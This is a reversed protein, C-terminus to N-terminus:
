AHDAGVADAVRAFGDKELIEALEAAIRRLLLPGQYILATYTQILVAGARIKEYAAAGSDVGGAGVIPAGDSARYVLRVLKTARERLPAGSLGGAEKAAASKLSAPRALTTNSVIWGDTLGLDTITAVLGEVADDALDPSLKILLAPRGPNEGLEARAARAIRILFEEHQLDRLGPTNPSSVNITLFDALPAFARVGDRYATAPDPEGKNMGLNVGVLGRGRRSYRRFARMRAAVAAHGASNFGYRNIVAQDEPLRFVRPKPNGPQPAPTVAGIEVFAAGSRLLPAMAEADKDFGAAVGIPHEFQRGWVRTALSAPPAPAPPLLGAQLARIALDHATEPDTLRLARVALQYLIDITLPVKSPALLFLHRKGVLGALLVL